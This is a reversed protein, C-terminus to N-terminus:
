LDEYCTQTSMNIYTTGSGASMTYIWIGNKQVDTNASGNFYVNCKPFIYVEKHRCPNYVITGTTNSNYAIGTANLDIVKDYLVKIRKPSSSKAYPSTFNTPDELVVSTPPYTDAVQNLDKVVIIRLLGYDDTNGSVYAIYRLLISKISIKNGVRQSSSTGQAILNCSINVQLSTPVTTTQQNNSYKKEILSNFRKIQKEVKNYNNKKSYKKFKSKSKSSYKSKM